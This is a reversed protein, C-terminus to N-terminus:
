GTTENLHKCSVLLCYFKDVGGGISYRHPRAKEFLNNKICIKGGLSSFGPGMVIVVILVAGITKLM